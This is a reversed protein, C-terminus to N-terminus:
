VPSAPTTPRTTTVSASYMRRCPSDTAIAPSDASVVTAAALHSTLSPAGLEQTDEISSGLPNVLLLEQVPQRTPVVVVASLPQGETKLSLPLGDVSEKNSEGEMRVQQMNLDLASADVAHEAHPDASKCAQQQSVTLEPSHDIAASSTDNQQLMPTAKGFYQKNEKMDTTSSVYHSSLATPSDLTQAETQHALSCHKRATTAFSSEHSMAHSFNTSDQLVSNGQGSEVNPTRGGGQVALLAFDSCAVCCAEITIQMWRAGADSFTHCQGNQEANEQTSPGVTAHECAVRCLQLRQCLYETVRCHWNALPSSTAYTRKRQELQYCSM